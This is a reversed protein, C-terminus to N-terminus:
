SGGNKGEGGQAVPADPTQADASRASADAQARRSNRGYPWRLAGAKEKLADQLKTLQVDAIEVKVGLAESVSM